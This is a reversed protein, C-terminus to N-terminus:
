KKRKFKLYEIYETVDLIDTTTLGEKVLIDKLKSLGVYDANPHEKIYKLGWQKQFEEKLANVDKCWEKSNDDNWIISFLTEFKINLAFALRILVDIKPLSKYCELESIVANSVGSASSLDRISMNGRKEKIFDGVNQKMIAIAKDINKRDTESFKTITQENKNMVNVGCLISDNVM